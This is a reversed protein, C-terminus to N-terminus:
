QRRKRAIPLAEDPNPWDDLGEGPVTGAIASGAAAPGIAPIGRLEAPTAPLITSSSTTSAPSTGTANALRLARSVRADVEATREEDDLWETSFPEGWTDRTL